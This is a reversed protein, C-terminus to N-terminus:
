LGWGHVADIRRGIGARVLKRNRWRRRELIADIAPRLDARRRVFWLDSTDLDDLRCGAFKGCAVRALVEDFDPIPMM